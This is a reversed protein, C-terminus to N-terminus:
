NMPVGFRSELERVQTALILRECIRVVDDVTLDYYIGAVVHNSTDILRWGGDNLKHVRRRLRSKEARLGAQKALRRAELALLNPNM